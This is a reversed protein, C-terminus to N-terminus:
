VINRFKKKKGGAAAGIGDWLVALALAAVM